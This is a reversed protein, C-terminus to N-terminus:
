QKIRGNVVCSIAKRRANKGEVVAAPLHSDIPNPVDVPSDTDDNMM